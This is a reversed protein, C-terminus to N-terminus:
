RMLAFRRSSTRRERSRSKVRQCPSLPIALMEAKTIQGDKITIRSIPQKRYGGLLLRGQPDKAISIWSGETAMDSLRLLEVKFGPLTDLAEPKTIDGKPPMDGRASLCAALISVITCIKSNM